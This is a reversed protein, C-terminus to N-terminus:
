VVCGVGTSRKGECNTEDVGSRRKQLGDGADSGQPLTPFNSDTIKFVPFDVLREPVSVRTDADAKITGLVPRDAGKATYSVAAYLTMRKQNDWSAVQPQYVILRANSPTTYSRPWGGDVAPPTASAPKAPTAQMAAASVIPAELGRLFGVPSLLLSCTTVVAIQRRIPHRCREMTFEKDSPAPWRRNRRRRMTIEDNKEDITVL